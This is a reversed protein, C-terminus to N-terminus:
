HSISFLVLPETLLSRFIYFMSDDDGCPFTLQAPLSPLIVPQNLTSLHSKQPQPPSSCCCLDRKLTAAAPTCSFLSSFGSPMTLFSYIIINGPFTQDSHSCTSRLVLHEWPWSTLSDSPKNFPMLYVHPTHLCSIHYFGGLLTSGASFLM